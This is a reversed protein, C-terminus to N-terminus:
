ESEDEEEEDNNSDNITLMEQGCISCEWMTSIGYPDVSRKVFQHEHENM